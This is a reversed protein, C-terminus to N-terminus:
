GDCYGLSPAGFLGRRCVVGGGCPHADDCLPRCISDAGNPSRVCALTGSCNSRGDEFSPVCGQGDAFRAQENVCTGVVLGPAADINPQDVRCVEGAGCGVNTFPDCQGVCVGLADLNAVGFVCEGGPACGSADDATCLASCVDNGFQELPGCLHNARCNGWYEARDAGFCNDGQTGAGQSLGDICGSIIRAGAGAGVQEIVSCLQGPLCGTQAIPDCVELCFSLGPVRDSYDVCRLSAPQGPCPTAADCPPLCAGYQCILGAACHTGTGPSCAQGFGVDGVATCVTAAGFVACGAPGGCADANNLGNCGDSPMCAGDCSQFGAICQETPMCGENAGCGANAAFVDCARRCLGGGGAAAACILGADCGFQNVRCLTGASGDGVAACQGARCLENFNCDFDDACM